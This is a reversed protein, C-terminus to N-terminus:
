PQVTFDTTQSVVRVSGDAGAVAARAELVYAGPQLTCPLNVAGWVSVVGDQAPTMYAAPRSLLEEGDRLVRLEVSLPLGHQTLAAAPRNYAELAYTLRAGAKFVRM